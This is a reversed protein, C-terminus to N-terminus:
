SAIVALIEEDNVIRLRDVDDDSYGFQVSYLKTGPYRETVVIDGPKCWDPGGFDKFATPGLKLVEAFQCGQQEKKHAAQAIVLGTKTREEIKIMKLLVRHGVPIFDAENFVRDGIPTLSAFDSDSTSM